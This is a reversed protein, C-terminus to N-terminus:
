QDTDFISLLSKMTEEGMTSVKYYTREPDGVDGLDYVYKRILGAVKLKKLIDELEGNMDDFDYKLKKLTVEGNYILYVLVALCKENSITRLVRILRDPLKSLYYSVTSDNM